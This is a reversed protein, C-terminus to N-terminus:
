QSGAVANRNISYVPQQRLLGIVGIVAPGVCSAENDSGKLVEALNVAQSARWNAREEAAKAADIQIQAEREAALRAEEQSRAAELAAQSREQELMAEAAKMEGRYYLSLGGVTATSLFGIAGVILPILISSPIVRGAREHLRAAWDVAAPSATDM